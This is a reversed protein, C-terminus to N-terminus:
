VNQTLTTLVWAIKRGGDGGHLALVTSRERYWHGCCDHAHICRTPPMRYDVAAQVKRLSAELPVFFARMSYQVGGFHDVKVCLDGADEIAELEIHKIERM